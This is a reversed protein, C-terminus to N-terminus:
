SIDKNSDPEQLGILRNSLRWVPKDVHSELLHPEVNSIQLEGTM